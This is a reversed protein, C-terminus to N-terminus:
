DVVLVIKGRTHRTEIAAQALRADALPFTQAIEVHLTGNEFLARLTDLRKASPASETHAITIGREARVEEGVLEALRGGDRVAHITTKANDDRGVCDLAADVGAPAFKKVGAVVDGATYDVVDAAGLTRVYEINATGATAIVRAGLVKGAIQVALTGVGGSAGAILVTQGAEVRLEDVLAQHSTIGDVPIAAAEIFSLNKPKLAVDDAKVCVYQAYAGQDGYFYTYVEDGEHLPGDVGAGVADVMGSCEAGVGAARVRIRVEDAEPEPVPLERFLLKDLGGYGDIAIAQMVAKTQTAM